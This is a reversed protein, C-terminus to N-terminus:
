LAQPPDRHACCDPADLEAAAGVQRHQRRDLGAEGIRLLRDGIDLPQPAQEIRQVRRALVHAFRLQDLGGERVRDATEADDLVEAVGDPRCRPRQGVQLVGAAEEQRQVDAEVAAPFRVHTDDVVVDARQEICQEAMALPIGARGRRAEVVVAAPHPVVFQRGPQVVGVRLRGGAIRVIAGPDLAHLPARGRGIGRVARDCGRVDIRQGLAQLVAAIGHEPIRQVAQRQRQARQLAQVAQQRQEGAAAIRQHQAAERVQRQALEARQPELQRRQWQRARRLRRQLQDAVRQGVFQGPQAVVQWERRGGGLPQVEVGRQQLIRHEVAGVADAVAHERQVAHAVGCRRTRQKSRELWQAARRGVRGRDAVQHRDAPGPQLRQAQGRVPQVAQRRFEGLAHFRAVAQEAVQAAVVRVVPQPRQAMAGRGAHRRADVQAHHMHRQQQPQVVRRVSRGRQVRPQEFAGLRQGRRVAPELQQCQLRCAAAWWGVALQRAVVEAEGVADALRRRVGLRAGGVLHQRAFQQQAKAVLAAIRRQRRLGVFQEVM